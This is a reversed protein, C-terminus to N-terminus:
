KELFAKLRKWYYTKWGSFISSYSAPPVGIQTLSLKTRGAGAGSLSFTVISFTGAPWDRGRWAQVIRRSEVLELNFGKIHGGYCTFAGGVKRSIAAAAGTFKAHRKENMLAKFVQKPRANITVRQRITKTM